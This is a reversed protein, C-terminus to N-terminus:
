RTEDKYIEEAVSDIEGFVEEFEEENENQKHRIAETVKEEMIKQQEETPVVIPVIRIDSVQTNVTGNIFVNIIHQIMSSNLIGNLYKASVKSYTPIYIGGSGDVM